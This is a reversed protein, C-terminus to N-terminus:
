VLDDQLREAAFPYRRTRQFGLKAHVDRTVRYGLVTEWRDVDDDWPRTVAASTTVDGFRMAEIRGALWGGNTFSWRAEAYGCQVDLNGTLITEWRRNVGEGRLEFAGREIEADVMLTTERYDRLDKGFPLLPHYWAPMWTGDAGSVGVRLGPVPL